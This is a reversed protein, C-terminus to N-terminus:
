PKRSPPVAFDAPKLLAAMASKLVADGQEIPGGRLTTSIRVFQKPGLLQRRGKFSEWVHAWLRDDKARLATGGKGEPANRRYRLGVGMNHDLRYPLPQGGVLGFFYVLEKQNSATFLRREVSFKIGGVEIDMLEPQVPELQWGAETWCRDPTHVFLGIENPNENFRKATFLRVCEGEPNTFQGYFLADAALAKEASKDVEQPVCKWAPSNTQEALWVSPQDSAARTYWVWPFMWCALVLASGIGVGLWGARGMQVNAKEM